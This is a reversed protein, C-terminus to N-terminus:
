KSFRSPWVNKLYTSIAIPASTGLACFSSLSLNECVDLFDKNNKLLCDKQCQGNKINQQFMELLRYTGERCPACQGCSNEAFFNLWYNILKVPSHKKLNYITISGAGSVKQKLQKQNLVDGSADGGVQVFFEYKPYNGSEILVKEISWDDPFSYVGINRSEVNVSCLREKKFNNKDVLAVNYITEINNILTPEGFLGHETPFPPRLRPEIHRGEIINLIASEEGGIYGAEKPKRIIEFEGKLSAGEFAKIIKKKYLDFYKGNLYFYIKKAKIFDSAIKVGESFEKLHNRIIYGDKYIGPEGEAGNIVLYRIKSKAKAVSKWKIHTPFSAGGRGVLCASEIKEIISM